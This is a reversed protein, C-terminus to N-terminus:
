ERFGAVLAAKARRSAIGPQSSKFTIREDFFTDQSVFKQCFSSVWTAVLPTIMQDCSIPASHWVRRGTRNRASDLPLSLRRQIGFKGLGLGGLSPASPM